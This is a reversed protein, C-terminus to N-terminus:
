QVPPQSKMLGGFGDRVINIALKAFSLAGMIMAITAPAFGFSAWDYAALSGLLAMVLNLVNHLMNTNM